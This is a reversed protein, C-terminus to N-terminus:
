RGTRVRRVVMEARSWRQRGWRRGQETKGSAAARDEGVGNSQRRGGQESCLPPTVEDCSLSSADRNLSLSFLTSPISRRQQQRVVEM